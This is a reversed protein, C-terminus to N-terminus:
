NVTLLDGHHLECHQQQHRSGCHHLCCVCSVLSGQRGHQALLVLKGGALVELFHHLLQSDAPDGPLEAVGRRRDHFERLVVALVAEGGLAGELVGVEPEADALLELLLGRVAASDLADDGLLAIHQGVHLGPVLGGGDDAGEGGLLDLHDDLDSVDSGRTDVFGQLDSEWDSKYMTGQEIFAIM